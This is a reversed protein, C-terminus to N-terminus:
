PTLLWDVIREVEDNTLRESYPPMPVGKSVSPWNGKGGNKITAILHNRAATDNNYKAMIQTFRPGVSAGHCESCDSNNILSEGTQAQLLMSNLLLYSTVLVIWHTNM